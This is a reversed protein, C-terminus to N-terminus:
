GAELGIVDAPPNRIFQVRFGDVPDAAGIGRPQLRAADGDAAVDAMGALLEGVGQDASEVVGADIDHVDAEAAGLVDIERGRREPEVAADHDGRAVVRRVVVPELEDAVLRARDAAIRPELVDALDGLGALEDVGGLFAVDTGNSM